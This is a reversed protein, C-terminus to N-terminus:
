HYIYPICKLKKGYKLRFKERTVYNYFYIWVKKSFKLTLFIATFIEFDLVFIFTMCYKSLCRLIYASIVIKIASDHLPVNRLNLQGMFTDSLLMCSCLISFFRVFSLFMGLRKKNRALYSVFLTKLRQYFRGM